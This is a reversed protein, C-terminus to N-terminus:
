SNKIIEDVINIVDQVTEIAAFDYNNSGSIVDIGDEKLMAAIAIMKVSDIGLDERLKSGLNIKEKNKKLVISKLISLVTKNADKM